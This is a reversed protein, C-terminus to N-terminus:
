TIGSKEKPLEKLIAEKTNKQCVEIVRQASGKLLLLSSEQVKRARTSFDGKVRHLGPYAVIQLPTTRM